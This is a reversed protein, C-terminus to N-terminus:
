LTQNELFYEITSKVGQHLDILPKWTTKEMFSNNVAIVNRKEIILLNSPEEIQEILPMHNTKNYTEEAIIEFLESILYGKGNSIYFHNGNLSDIEKAATLFANIVDTIYIYDRFYNGNGYITLPMNHIARKVMMNVVGREKASSKPGPGYVNTLRLTVGKVAGKKCYYELYKEAFLKNIDYITVPSDITTENIQLETNMGVQTATGSFIITPSMQKETCVQLITVLPLTNINLDLVPNKEANYISTQAAFHFIIDNGPLIKELLNRDEVTGTVNRIICKRKSKFEPWEDVRYDFRTIEVEIDLLAKILNYAIYGNGGTILVKKNTFFEHNM